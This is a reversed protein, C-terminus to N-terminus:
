FGIHVDFVARGNRFAGRGYFNGECYAYPHYEVGGYETYVPFRYIEHHHRHQAHYLRGHRYASYTHLLEHLIVRPIDFRGRRGHRYRDYRGNYHGYRDQRHHNDYHRNRYRRDYRDYRHRQRDHRRQRDYRHDDRHRNRDYRQDRRHDRHDRRDQYRDHDRYGDRDGRRDDALAAGSGAFILVLFAAAWPIVRRHFRTNFNRSKM